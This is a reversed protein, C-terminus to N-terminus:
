NRESRRNQNAVKPKKEESLSIKSPSSLDARAMQENNTPVYILSGKPLTKSKRGLSTIHPNFVQAKLKDGDFWKLLEEYAFVRDAKIEVSALKQSWMVPGLYKPANKEVELVALFSPYFNRSAFGFSKRSSVQTALVEFEKTKYKKVIKQIGAPGHNYATIALPWSKLLRYNARLFKAAARTAEYPHNRNDFYKNSKFYIKATKPMLQWLGSAGVKSRALVNFSSEVFIMRTLEKPVKHKVFTEEFSELYRGSAFIGQIVRDKQGLQFRIQSAKIKKNGLIRKKADKVAKIKLAEKKYINIDTRASIPSFDLVEYIKTM